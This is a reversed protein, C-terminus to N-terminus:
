PKSPSKETTPEQRIETRSPGHTELQGIETLIMVTEPSTAVHTNLGQQVRPNGTLEFRGNSATYVVKDARGVMQGPPGGDPNPPNRVVGVNGEVVAKEFGANQDKSIYVTLMDGQINFRPDTVVVHGTFIGIMKASDFVTKDAYIETVIPEDARAATVKESKSATDGQASPEQTSPARKEAAASLSRPAITAPASGQGHAVGIVWGFCLIVGIRWRRRM